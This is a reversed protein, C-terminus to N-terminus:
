HNVQVLETVIEAARAILNICQAVGGDPAYYRSLDEGTPRSWDIGSIDQCNISGGSPLVEQSFRAVLQRCQVFVPPEIPTYTDLFDNRPAVSHGHHIPVGQHPDSDGRASPQGLGLALMGATLAGCVGGSGGMGRGLTRTASTLLEDNVGTVDQLALLVCQSCQRGEALYSEVTRRLEQGSDTMGRKKGM